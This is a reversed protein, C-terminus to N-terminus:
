LPHRSSDGKQLDEVKVEVEKGDEVKVSVTGKVLNHRVVEGRGAPTDISKGVKPVSKKMSVYAEHEFALCCMLRGCLGSIKEPNLLMNQEKAMKVSVTDLNQLFGVCCLERGCIGVGGFIRAENRVGIQRLEIRTKFRQVLDKVLERFDVRNDATFYFVIKSRDFLCEVEVLKMPLNRERIRELCFTKAEKEVQRNREEIGQDEASVRRIVKKLDAPLRGGPVARVATVVNGVVPGNETEVIVRDGKKILPQDTVDFTYVKGQKNFRVGVVSKM